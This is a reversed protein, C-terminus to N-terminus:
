LASVYPCKKPVLLHMGIAIATFIFCCPCCSVFSNLQMMLPFNFRISVHLAALMSFIHAIMRMLANGIRIGSYTHISIGSMYILSKREFIIARKSHFIWDVIGDNRIM